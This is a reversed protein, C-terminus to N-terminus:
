LLGQWTQIFNQGARALSFEKEIRVRAARGRQKLHGKGEKIIQNLGEALAQPSGPPVVIGTNQIIHASDGVDTVIAPVECAMAEAVVNPFGEGFASSSILVDAAAMLDPIDDRRGLGLVSPPKSLRETGEGVLVLSGLYM